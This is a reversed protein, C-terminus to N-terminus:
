NDSRLEAIQAPGNKLKKAKKPDDIGLKTIEKVSKVKKDLCDILYNKVLIYTVKLLKKMM